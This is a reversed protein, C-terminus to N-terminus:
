EKVILTQGETILTSATNMGNLAKIAEITTNYKNALGYLTDGSVVVHTIPSGGIHINFRDWFQSWPFLRPDSRSGDIILDKHTTIDMKTLSFTKCLYACVDAVADVQEPPYKPDPVDEIHAKQSIEIGVTGRNIAAGALQKSVWRTKRGAHNTYNKELNHNLQYVSGDKLVVFDVSVGRNEPDHALYLADNKTGAGATDHLVIGRVKAGKRTGLNKATLTQIPNM